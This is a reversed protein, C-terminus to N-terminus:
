LALSGKHLFDKAGQFVSLSDGQHAKLLVRAHAMAASQRMGNRAKGTKMVRQGMEPVVM